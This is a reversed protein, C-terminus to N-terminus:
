LTTNALYYPIYTTKQHTLSIPGSLIPQVHQSTEFIHLRDTKETSVLCNHDLRITLWIYLFGKKANRNLGHMCNRLVLLVHLLNRYAAHLQQM